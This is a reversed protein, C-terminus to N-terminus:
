RIVRQRLRAEGCFKEAVQLVRKPRMISVTGLFTVSVSKMSGRGTFTAPTCNAGPWSPLRTRFRVIRTHVRGGKIDETSVSIREM